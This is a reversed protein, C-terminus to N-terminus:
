LVNYLICHVKTKVNNLSLLNWQVKIKQVRSLCHVCNNKAMVKERKAWNKGADKGIGNKIYEMNPFM